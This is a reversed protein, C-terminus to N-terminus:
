CEHSELINVMPVLIDNEILTHRCLDEELYFIVFLAKNRLSRDCSAPLYKMVINKLDSLKEDINSHNEEFTEISYGPQRGGALLANVYPFVTNEEYDFHIEVERKYDMFFKRVIKKQGEDTPAILRILYGELVSMADQLYSLHSNHLYGVIDKLEASAILDAAPVYNDFTYENCILLFSSVNIGHEACAEAVTREGFGLGIGLRSLVELLNHNMEILEALKM